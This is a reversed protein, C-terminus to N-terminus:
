SLDVGRLMTNPINELCIDRFDKLTQDSHAHFGRTIVQDSDTYSQLYYAHAGKLWESIVYMDDKSHLERVLTTRFEYPFYGTMSLLCSVSERILSMNCSSLGTTVAYKEPSNKIDMACYDILRKNLLLRLVDPQYGNTDLKVLLGLEKIRALFDPLDKQLTPEGGTICVGTLIGARKKLFALIEEETYPTVQQAALSEQAFVIDKNHCFPCRFNCGGTFITAAVHEPYDLLTTKTLGLILM